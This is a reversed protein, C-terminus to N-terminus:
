IEILWPSVDPLSGLPFEGSMQLIDMMESVATLKYKIATYDTLFTMDQAARIGMPSECFSILSERVIEFGIKSEFDRPYIM